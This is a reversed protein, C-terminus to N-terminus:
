KVSRTDLLAIGGLFVGVAGFLFGGCIWGINRFWTTTRNQAPDKPLYFVLVASGKAAPTPASGRVPAHQPPTFEYETGNVFVGDIATAERHFRWEHRMAISAAILSALGIALLTPGMWRKRM